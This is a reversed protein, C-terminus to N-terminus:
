WCYKSAKCFNPRRLRWFPSKEIFCQSLSQGSHSYMMEGPILIKAHVVQDITKALVM